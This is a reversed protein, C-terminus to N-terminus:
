KPRTTHDQLWDVDVSGPCAIKSIGNVLAAQDLPPPMTREDLWRHIEAHGDCFSFGCANGHSFTPVDVLSWASPNRPSYGTMDTLFNGYNIADPREDIFLFVKSAGPNSLEPFKLYVKFSAMISLSGGTIPVGKFGGVYSNMCISRVRPVQGMGPPTVYSKDAPCKWIGLAKGCYPWMKSGTQAPKTPSPMIDETPDWNSPNGNRFDILGNCWAYETWTFTAADASAWLLRDNNDETYMRWAMALQRNNSMCQAGQAKMKARRLAPLLLAALIAIIAIVVLLEILTFGSSPRANPGSRQTANSSRM